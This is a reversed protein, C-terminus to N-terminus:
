PNTQMGYASFIERGIDAIVKNRQSLSTDTQTLYVSIIVPSDQEPWVIATIGRSGNGGAGSRDAISWGEPLVSRFLAGTIRTDIMWQKLQNKSEQSLMEDFLISNLTSVIAIPTTTDRVDGYAAENLEPEMRDLRTVEDGISRLFQTLAKPGDIATLVINAATNDSMIMTASCAQRLSIREGILPETIPSWEVIMEKTIVVSADLSQLGNEADSLLKACALTKFTSMLPFRTDGKYSWLQKDKVDFIAVGIPADLQNELEEIKDVLLNAYACINIQAILLLL